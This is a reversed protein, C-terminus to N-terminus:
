HTVTTFAITKTSADYSVTLRSLAKLDAIDQANASSQASAASATSRATPDLVNIPVGDLEFIEVDAM